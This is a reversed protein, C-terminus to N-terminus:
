LPYRTFRAAQRTAGASERFAREMAMYGFPVVELSGAAFERQTDPRDRQFTAIM